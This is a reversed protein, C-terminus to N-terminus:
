PSAPEHLTRIENGVDEDNRDVEVVREIIPMAWLNCHSFFPKRIFAASSRRSTRILLVSILLVAEREVWQSFQLVSRPLL